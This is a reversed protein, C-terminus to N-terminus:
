ALDIQVPQDVLRDGQQAAIDREPPDRDEHHRGLIQQRPHDTIRDLQLLDQEIEDHVGLVRDCRGPVAWPLNDDLGRDVLRAEHV